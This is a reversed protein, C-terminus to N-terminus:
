IKWSNSIDKIAECNHPLAVEAYSNHFSSIRFSWGLVEGLNFDKMHLVRLTLSKCAILDARNSAVIWLKLFKHPNRTAQKLLQRARIMADDDAPISDVFMLIWPNYSEIDKSLYSRVIEEAMDIALEIGAAMFNKGYATLSPAKWKKIPLIPSDYLEAGNGNFIITCIDIGTKDDFHERIEQELRGLSENLEVIPNVGNVSGKGMSASADLLLVIPLRIIKNDIGEVYKM